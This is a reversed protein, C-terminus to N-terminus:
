ARNPKALNCESILCRVCALPVHNPCHSEQGIAARHELFACHFAEFDNLGPISVM